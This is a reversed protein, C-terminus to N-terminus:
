HRAELTSPRTKVLNEPLGTTLSIVPPLRSGFTNQCSGVCRHTIVSKTSVLLILVMWNRVDGSRLSQVKVLLTSPKKSHGSQKSNGISPSALLFFHTSVAPLLSYITPVKSPVLNM